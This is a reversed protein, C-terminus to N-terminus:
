SAEESGMRGLHWAKGLRVGLRQCEKGKSLDIKRWLQNGFRSCAYQDTSSNAQEEGSSYM